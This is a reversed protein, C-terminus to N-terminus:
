CVRQLYRCGIMTGSENRVEVYPALVDERDAALACLLSVIYQTGEQPAPMGDLRGYEVLKCEAETMGDPLSGYQSNAPREVTKLRAVTGSPPIVEKPGEAIERNGYLNIPHPTLNILPM